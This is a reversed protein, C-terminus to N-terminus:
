IGNNKNEESFASLYLHLQQNLILFSPILFFIMDPHIDHEGLLSKKFYFRWNPPIHVCM